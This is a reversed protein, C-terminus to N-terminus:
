ITFGKKIVERQRMRGNFDLFAQFLGKKLPDSEEEFAKILSAEDLSQVERIIEDFM